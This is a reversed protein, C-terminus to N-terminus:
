NKENNNLCIGNKNIKDLNENIDHLSMEVSKMEDGLFGVSNLFGLDSDYQRSITNGYINKFEINFKFDPFKNNFKKKYSFTEDFYSKITCNPPLFKIEDFDKFSLDMSNKLPKDTKIKIDTAMTSGINEIIIYLRHYEAKIYAIVEASNNEERSKISENVSKRTEYVMVVTAVVLALNILNAINQSNNSIFDFILNIM